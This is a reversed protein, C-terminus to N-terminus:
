NRVPVVRCKALLRHASYTIGQVHSILIFPMRRSTHFAQSKSYELLPAPQGLTAALSRPLTINDSEILKQAIPVSEKQSAQDDYVGLELMDGNIGGATNIQEVALKAGNLASTGDAAAFGTLPVNFGVKINDAISSTAISVLGVTAVLLTSKIKMENERKTTCLYDSNPDQSTFSKLRLRRAIGIKNYGWCSALIQAPV